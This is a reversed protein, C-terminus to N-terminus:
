LRGLVFFDKHFPLLLYWPCASPSSLLCTGRYRPTAPLPPLWAGPPAEEGHFFIDKSNSNSISIKMTFLARRWVIEDQQCHFEAPLRSLLNLIRLKGFCCWWTISCLQPLSM